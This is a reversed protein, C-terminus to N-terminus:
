PDEFSLISVLVLLIIRDKSYELISVNDGQATRRM